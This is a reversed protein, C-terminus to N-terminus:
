ALRPHDRIYAALSPIAPRWQDAARYLFGNDIIIRKAVTAEKPELGAADLLQNLEATTPRKRRPSEAAVLQAAKLMANRHLEAERADNEFEDFRGAYFDGRVAEM